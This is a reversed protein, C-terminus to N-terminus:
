FEEYMYKICGKVLDLVWIYKRDFYYVVIFYSDNWFVIVFFLISNVVDDIICKIVFM